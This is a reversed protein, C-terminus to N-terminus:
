ADFTIERRGVEQHGTEAIGKHILEALWQARWYRLTKGMGLFSIPVVYRLPHMQSLDNLNWWITRIFTILAFVHRRRPRMRRVSDDYVSKRLSYTLRKVKAEVDDM